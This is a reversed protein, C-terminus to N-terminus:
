MERGPLGLTTHGLLQKFIWGTATKRRRVSSEKSRANPYRWRPVPEYSRAQPGNSTCPARSGTVGAHCGAGESVSGCSEEEHAAGRQGLFTNALSPIHLSVCPGSEPISTRPAPGCTQCRLLLLSAAFLPRFVCERHIGKRGGLFIAKGTEQTSLTVCSSHAQMSTMILPLLGQPGTGQYPEWM